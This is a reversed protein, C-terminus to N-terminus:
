EDFLQVVSGVTKRARKRKLQEELESMTNGAEPICTIKNADLFKTIVSLLAPNVVPPKLVEADLSEPDESVREIVADFLDQAVETHELARKMVKAVKSHLDGLESESAASM